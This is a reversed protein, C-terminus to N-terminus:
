YNSACNLLEWYKWLPWSLLWGCLVTFHHLTRPSSVLNAEIAQLMAKSDVSKPRSSRAQYNFNKGRLCFKKLWRSVTSQDVKGESKVCCINQTTEVTIHGLQFEYLMLEWITCEDTHNSFWVCFSVICLTDLVGVVIISCIMTLVKWLKVLKAWTIYM